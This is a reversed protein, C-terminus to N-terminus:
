FAYVQIIMEIEREYFKQSGSALYFLLKNYLASAFIYCKKSAFGCMVLFRSFDSNGTYIALVTINLKSACFILHPQCSM